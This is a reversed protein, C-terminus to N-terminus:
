ISPLFKKYNRELISVGELSWGGKQVLKIPDPSYSKRVIQPLYLISVSGHKTETESNKLETNKKKKHGSPPM